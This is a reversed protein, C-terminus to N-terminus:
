VVFNKRIKFIEHFERIEVFKLCLVFIV